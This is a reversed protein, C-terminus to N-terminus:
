QNDVMPLYAKFDLQGLWVFAASPVGWNGDSDRGEVFILHRGASWGATDIVVQAEETYSDFDGDTAVMPLVATGTIWAPADLSYRAGAITQTTIGPYARRDDALASVTISYGPEVVWPEVTLNLMEPGAPTQYPRRASKAAYMLAELNDPLITDEFSPCDQFFDTGMEFTYAPIGLEGYVFDDSDGTTLYLDSAQEPLYANYFALKHGLTRLQAQNPAPGYTYGWPWLVLQGYSHLSIFLGTTSDPAPEEGEGRHDRFTAKLYEELAQTEPESTASPGQYIESCADLSAGGWNYGFNRNLDTGYQNFADPPVACAGGNSNNTNKRQYYGLEALKRGDPNAMPILHIEQYNLLWTVDPNSGYNKMLYQAFRAALEATAYERAHIAAIIVLVPKPVPSAFDQNTLVLAHIDYGSAENSAIKEWSDGLDIWRALRPYAQSLASLDAYTEEATRYCAYGPIGTSQGPLVQNLRSTGSTKKQDIEIRYGQKAFREYAARGMAAVVYGAERNVEWIDLSKSLKDILARDRTYMRVVLGERDPAATPLPKSDPSPSKGFKSQAAVVSAGTLALALLVSLTTLIRKRM